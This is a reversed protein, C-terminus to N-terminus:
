INLSKLQICLLTHSLCFFEFCSYAEHLMLSSFLSVCCNSDDAKTESLHIYAHRDLDTVPRLVTKHEGGTQEQLQLVKVYNLFTKAVTRLSTIFCLGKKGEPGGELRGEWLLNLYPFYGVPKIGFCNGSGMDEKEKKTSLIFTGYKAHM